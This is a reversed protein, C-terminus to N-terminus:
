RVATLATILLYVGLFWLLQTTLNLLPTALQDAVFISTIGGIPAMITLYFLVPNLLRSMRQWLWTSYTIKKRVASNWSLFSAAGGAIFFLPM